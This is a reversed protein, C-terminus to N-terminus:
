PLHLTRSVHVKLSDPAKFAKFTLTRKCLDQDYRDTDQSGHRSAISLVHRLPLLEM